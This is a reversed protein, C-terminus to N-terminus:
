LPLYEQRLRKEALKIYEESLEIGIYNRGLKRAVLATTGAGMFIDMVIGNKMEGEYDCHPCKCKM